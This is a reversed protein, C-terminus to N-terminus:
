KKGSKAKIEKFKDWDEQAVIYGVCNASGCRCPHDEWNELDYAYDYTIEEGPNIDRSAIIWIKDDIIDIEANPDCSHNIYKAPNWDVNGDIDWEDNLEFIYVAGKSNDNLHSEMEKDAIDESEQKTIKRGVYEIIKTGSPIFKSAFAGNSHIGSSRIEIYELIQQQM